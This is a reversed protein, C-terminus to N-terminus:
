HNQSVCKGFANAGGGYPGAFETGWFAQEAKCFQNANKFDSREPGPIPQWDPDTDDTLPHPGTLRSLGSGDASTTFLSRAEGAVEQAFVIRTGNPSWAAEEASPDTPSLIKVLGSGDPSVRYYGRASFSGVPNRFLIAKGDPSWDPKSIFIGEDCCIRIPDSGDPKVTWLGTRSDGFNAGSFAIKKGDPSWTPHIATDPFGNGVIGTDGSGDTKIVRLTASWNYAIQKGDPSWAPHAAFDTRPPVSTVQRKGTGDANMTWIQGTTFGPREVSTYAIKKGDASWTPWSPHAADDATLNTMGSGDPEIVWIDPPFNLDTGNPDSGRFAIKGDKGPFTAQAPIASLLAAAIV